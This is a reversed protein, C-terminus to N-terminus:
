FFIASQGEAHAGEKGTEYEPPQPTVKRFPPIEFSAKM